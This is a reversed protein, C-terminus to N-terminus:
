LEGYMHVFESRASLARRAEEYTNLSELLDLVAHHKRDEALRRADIGEPTRENVDAGASLLLKAVQVHGNQAALLLATFGSDKLRQGLKVNHNLLVRVVDAFGNQAAKLLPSSGDSLTHNVLAKNELLLKVVEADGSQAGADIPLWGNFDDNVEARAGILARVIGAHGFFAANYVATAGNHKEITPDARAALLLEVIELHGATSAIFLATAGKGDIANVTDQTLHAEVKWREGSKAGNFFEEEENRAGCLLACCAAFEFARRLRHATLM